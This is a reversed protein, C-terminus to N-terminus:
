MRKYRVVSFFIVAVAAVMGVSIAIFMAYDRIDAAETSEFIIWKDCQAQCTNNYDILSSTNDHIVYLYFGDAENCQSPSIAESPTTAPTAMPITTPTTTRTASPQPINVISFQFCSNLVNISGLNM